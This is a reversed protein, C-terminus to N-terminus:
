KFQCHCYVKLKTIIYFIYYYRIVCNRVRSQVYSTHRVCYWVCNNNEFIIIINYCKPSVRIIIIIIIIITIIILLLIVCSVAGSLAYQLTHEVFCLM